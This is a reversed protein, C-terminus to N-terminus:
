HKKRWGALDTRVLFYPSLREFIEIPPYFYRLANPWAFYQIFAFPHAKILEQGYQSYLAGMPGWRGFPQFVTDPGYKGRM